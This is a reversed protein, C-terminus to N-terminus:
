IGGARDRALAGGTLGSKGSFSAKELGTIKQTQKLAETSGPLNLAVQEATQQTYPDEGYISALQGGRLSGRAITSAAQQYQEGTVKNRVLNEAGSLTAELGAGKQAAGIEATTVKRQINKIANAPDLAYALIDGNTIEPYFEKLVQAIQPAGRIVREQATILRDELETNSVDNAILKEFGEQKGYTGTAYYSEPLGYQRMVKQYKDEMAIYSAPSLATLGAKVRADNASFRTMYAKTNRLAEPMQSISTAKMLLDKSDEVLAGLGLANFEDFLRKYADSMEGSIGAGTGAGAGSGGGGGSPTVPAAAQIPFNGNKDQGALPGGTYVMVKEGTNTTIEAMPYQEAGLVAMNPNPDSQVTRKPLAAIERIRDEATTEMNPNLNVSQQTVSQTTRKPLSAIERIRDEPATTM